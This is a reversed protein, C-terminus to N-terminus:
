FIELLNYKKIFDQSLHEKKAEKKNYLQNNNNDKM